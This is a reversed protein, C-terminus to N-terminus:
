DSEFSLKDWSPNCSRLKLIYMKVILVKESIITVSVREFLENGWVLWSLLEQRPEASVLRVLMRSFALKIGPRVWHTLSRANDHAKTYTASAAWIQHPQPQPAPWHSCNWSSGLRPVEMHRPQLELFIFLIFVFFYGLGLLLRFVWWCLVSYLYSVYVCHFIVWDYFSCFLAM